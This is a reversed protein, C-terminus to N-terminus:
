DAKQGNQMISMMNQSIDDSNTSINAVIESIMTADTSASSAVAMELSELSM